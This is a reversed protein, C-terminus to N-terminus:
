ACPFYIVLWLYLLQHQSYILKHPPLVRCVTISRIIRLVKAVLTLANSGIDNIYIFCSFQFFFFDWFPFPPPLTFSTPQLHSGPFVNLECISHTTAFHLLGNSICTHIDNFVFHASLRPVTVRRAAENEKTKQKATPVLEM